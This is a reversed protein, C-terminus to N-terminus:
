QDHLFAIALQIAYTPLSIRCGEIPEVQIGPDHRIDAGNRLGNGHVVADLIERRQTADGEKGGVAGVHTEVCGLLLVSRSLATGARRLKAAPPSASGKEDACTRRM